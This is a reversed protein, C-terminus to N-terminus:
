KWKSKEKEVASVHPWELAGMASLRARPCEGSYSELQSTKGVHNHLMEPYFVPVHRFTHTGIPRDEHSLEECASM